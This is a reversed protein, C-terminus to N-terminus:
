GSATTFVITPMLSLVRQDRWRNWGPATSPRRLNIVFRRLSASLAWPANQDARMMEDLLDVGIVLRKERFRTARSRPGRLRRCHAAGPEDAIFAVIPHEELPGQAIGQSLVVLQPNLNPVIAQTCL